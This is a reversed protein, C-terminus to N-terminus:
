ILEGIREPWTRVHPWDKLGAATPNDVVYQITKQLQDSDRLLVDFYDSQWFTGSRGLIKNAEHATYSKWSKIVLSLDDHKLRCVVHVHYPMVAYAMMDYEQGDRFELSSVVTRAVDTSRLWCEGVGQDLQTETIRFIEREIRRADSGDFDRERAVVLSSRLSAITNEIQRPLSGALRYTIFYLGNPVHWHPLKGRKRVVVHTYTYKM